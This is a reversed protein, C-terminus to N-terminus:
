FTQLVRQSRVAYSFKHLTAFLGGDEFHYIDPVMHTGTITTINTNIIAGPLMKETGPLQLHDQGLARYFETSCVIM